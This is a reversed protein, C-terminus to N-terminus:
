QPATAPILLLSGDGGLPELPELRGAGLQPLFLLSCSHFRKPFWHQSVM